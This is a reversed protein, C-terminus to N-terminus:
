SGEPVIEQEILEVLISKAFISGLMVVLDFVFRNLGVFLRNLTNQSSRGQFFEILLTKVSSKIFWVATVFRNGAMSSLMLYMRLLPSLIANMMESVPETMPVSGTLKEAANPAARHATSKWRTAIDRPTLRTELMFRGSAVCAKQIGLSEPVFFVFTGIVIKRPSSFLPSVLNVVSLTMERRTMLYLLSNM